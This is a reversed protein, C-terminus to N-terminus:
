VSKADSDETRHHSWIKGSPKWDEGGHRMRTEKISDVFREIARRTDSEHLHTSFVADEDCDWESEGKGPIPVPTIPTIEAGIRRKAFPWRKRKWSCESFKVSVAYSEEGSFVAYAVDTGMPTESFQESGLLFDAPYCSGRRWKPTKSDWENDDTWVNWWFAGNHISVSLERNVHSPWHEALFARWGKLRAQGTKPNVWQCGLFREFHMWFAFLWFCLSINLDADNYGGRGVEINFHRTPISWEIGITPEDGANRTGWRWGQLEGSRKQEDPSERRRMFSLRWWGRGHQLISGKPNGDRDENLNQSHWGILRGM